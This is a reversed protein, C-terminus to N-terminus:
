DNGEKYAIFIRNENSSPKAPRAIAAEDSLVQELVTYIVSVVVAVAGYEDPLSYLARLPFM